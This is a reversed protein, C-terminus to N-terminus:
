CRFALGMIGVGIIGIVLGTHYYKQMQKNMEMWAIIQGKEEIHNLMYDKKPSLIYYFYNTLFSVSVVLCVIAFNSMIKKNFFYRYFMIALSILLGLAFGQYYITLREGEIKEYIKKLSEPLQKKYKETIHSTRVSYAMYISAIIFVMSIACTISCVM